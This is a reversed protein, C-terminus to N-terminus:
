ASKKQARLRARRLAWKSTGPKGLQDMLRRKLLSGRQERLLEAREETVYFIADANKSTPKDLYEQIVERAKREHAAVKGERPRETDSMGAM